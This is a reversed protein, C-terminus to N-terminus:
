NERSTNRLTRFLSFNASAPTGPGPFYGAKARGGDPGERWAPPVRGAERLM